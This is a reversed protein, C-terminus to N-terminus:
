SVPTFWNTLIPSTIYYPLNGVVMCADPNKKTKKICFDYSIDLVDGWYVNEAPLITALSRRMQIDKELCLLMAFQEVLLRTLAGRGPGIEFCTTCMYEQAYLSVRKCLLGIIAEDVLFHQGRKQGM